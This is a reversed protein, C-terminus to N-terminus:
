KKLWLTKGGRKNEHMLIETFSLKAGGHVHIWQNRGLVLYHITTDGSLLEECCVIMDIILTNDLRLQSYGLLYFGEVEYECPQIMNEDTYKYRRKGGSHGRHSNTNVVLIPLNTLESIMGKLNGVGFDMDIILARETESVLHCWVDGGSCISHCLIYFVGEVEPM